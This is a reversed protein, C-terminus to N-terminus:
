SNRPSAKLPWLCRDIAMRVRGEQLHISVMEELLDVRRPDLRISDEYHSLARGSDRHLEAIRGLGYAAAPDGPELRQAIRFEGAAAEWAGKQILCEGLILYARRNDPERRVVEVGQEM